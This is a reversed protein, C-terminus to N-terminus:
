QFFTYEFLLSHNTEGTKEELWLEEKILNQENYLFKEWSLIETGEISKKEILNGNNDYNYSTVYTRDASGRESQKTITEALRNKDNYKNIVVSNLWMGTNEERIINGKTDFAIKREEVRDKYNFFVEKEDLIQGAENYSYFRDSDNEKPLSFNREEEKNVRGLSDYYTLISSNLKGHHIEDCKIIQKKQNYFYKYITVATDIRFKLEKMTKHQDKGIPFDIYFNTKEVLLNNSDYRFTTSDITYIVDVNFRYEYEPKGSKNFRKLQMVRGHIPSKKAKINRNIIKYEKIKNEVVAKESIETQSSARVWFFSLLTFLILKM